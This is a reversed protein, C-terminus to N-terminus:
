HQHHNRQHHSVSVCPSLLPSHTPCPVSHSLSLSLPIPFLLVIFFCFSFSFKNQLYCTLCHNFSPFFDSLYPKTFSTTSIREPQLFFFVTGKENVKERRKGGREDGKEDVWEYVDCWMVDCDTPSLSLSVSEGDREILSDCPVISKNGEEHVNGKMTRTSSSFWPSSPSRSVFPPSLPLPSDSLSLTLSSHPPSGPSVHDVTKFVIKIKRALAKEEQFWVKEKTVHHWCSRSMTTTLKSYFWNVSM